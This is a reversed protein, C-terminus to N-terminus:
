IIFTLIGLIITGYLVGRAMQDKKYYLLGFFVALDMVAGLAVLKGLQHQSNLIQIGALFTYETFIIIFLYSGLLAAVLALVFGYLIDDNM